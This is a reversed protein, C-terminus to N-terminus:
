SFLEGGERGRTPTLQWYVEDLFLTDLDPRGPRAFAKLQSEYCAVAARKRRMAAEDPSFQLPRPALGIDRLRSIRRDRLENMRRYPVDEYALWCCHRAHRILMLSAEHVLDHDSHFLGLPFLVTGPDCLALYMRLKLVIDERRPSAGYQSDLFEIWAPRAGLVALAARDEERRRGVVDSGAEFGCDRDWDTLAQRNPPKGAFVTVVTADIGSGLLGGCSFVGDDLHPSIVLVPCPSIDQLADATSPALPKM